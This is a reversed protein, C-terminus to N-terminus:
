GLVSKVKADMEAIGEPALPSDQLKTLAKDISALHAVQMNLDRDFDKQDSKQQKNLEEQRKSLSTQFKQLEAFTADVERIERDCAANIESM